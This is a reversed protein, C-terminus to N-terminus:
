KYTVVQRLTNDLEGTRFGSLQPQTGFLFLLCSSGTSSGAFTDNNGSDILHNIHDPQAEELWHEISRHIQLSAPM